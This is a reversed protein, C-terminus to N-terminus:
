RLSHGRRANVGRITDEAYNYEGMRMIIKHAEHAYRSHARLQKGYRIFILPIPLLGLSLFAFISVGWKTGIADTISHTIVPFIAALISRGLTNAAGASSSYITYVQATYALFTVFIITICYGFVVGALAPVVWHTTTGSSWAFWFLSIPMVACGSLVLKLHSESDELVMDKPVIGPLPLRTFLEMLRQYLILAIFMGLPIFLFM